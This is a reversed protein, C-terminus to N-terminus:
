KSLKEFTCNNFFEQLAGQDSISDFTAKSFKVEKSAKLRAEFEEKNTAFWYEQSVNLAEGNENRISNGRMARVTAVLVADNIAQFKGALYPNHAFKKGLQDSEPNATYWEEYESTFGDITGFRGANAYMGKSTFQNFLMSGSCTTVVVAPNQMLQQVCQGFTAAFNAMDNALILVKDKLISDDSYSVTWEASSAKDDGNITVGYEALAKKIGKYRFTMQHHLTMGHFDSPWVGFKDTTGEPLAIKNEGYYTEVFYKTMDYAAKEESEASPAIQGVFLPSEKFDNFDEDSVTSGSYAVYVNNDIGKELVVEKGSMEFNCIIANCGAAILQDALTGYYSPDQGEFKRYVVEVDLEKALSEWRAKFANTEEGDAGLIFGVKGGKETIPGQEFTPQKPGCSVLGLTAVGALAAAGVFKKM